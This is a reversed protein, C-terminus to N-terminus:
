DQRKNLLIAAVGCMISGVAFFWWYAGWNGGTAASVGIYIAITVTMIVGCVKSILLGSKKAEESNEWANDANYKEVNMKSAQMGIYIIATVGIAILMFFVAISFGEGRISEFAPMNQMFVMIVLAAIIIGVGATIASTYKRHFIEKEEETYFPEIFPHKKKFHEANMATRILILVGVLAFLIFFIGTDGITYPFLWEGLGQMALGLILIGVGAALSKSTRNCHDEYAKAENESVKTMDGNMLGDMTCGFLETILIMKEMEPFSGGSEWKSVTQRSVEMKEALQEQTMGNKERLVRVNEAFNMKSVM